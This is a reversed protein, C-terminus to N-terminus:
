EVTIILGPPLSKKMTRIPRLCSNDFRNSVGANQTLRDVQLNVCSDQGWFLNRNPYKIPKLLQVSIIVFSAPSQANESRKRPGLWIWKLM